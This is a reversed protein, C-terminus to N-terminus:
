DIISLYWAELEKSATIVDYGHSRLDETRDNRPAEDILSHLTKAWKKPPEKLSLFHVLDTIKVESPVSDSALSALGTGQAEILSIGLGESISPFLFLDMAMLLRPIDSRFGLLSVHKQLSLREIAGEIRSREEGDGVLVLHANPELALFEKFVALLFSHNKLPDFRGVHGVVVKGELDLEKRTNTRITEDYRLPALDIANLALRFRPSRAVRKGYRSIGAAMSCGLFYDAVFRTPYAFVSYMFGKLDRTNGAGHSHAVTTLGFRKAVWLYIAASSGIHGHVISYAPRNKFLRRWARIYPIINIGTFRPVRLIRGGLEKIEQEYHFTKESHVVFDFQIESRDITRYLNMVFAEAGGLDLGGLVHLIKIPESM